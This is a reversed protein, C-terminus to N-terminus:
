DGCSPCSQLGSTGSSLISDPSMPQLTVMRRENGRTCFFTPTVSSFEGLTWGADMWDLMAAVFYRRLDAGAPIERTDVTMGTMTRVVLWTPTPILAPQLPDFTSRKPTM